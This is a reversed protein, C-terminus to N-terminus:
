YQVLPLINRNIQWDGEDGRLYLNQEVKAPGSDFECIQFFRFEPVLVSLIKRQFSFSVKYYLPPASPPVQVRMVKRDVSKLDTTYVLEVM